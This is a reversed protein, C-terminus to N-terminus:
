EPQMYIPNTVALLGDEADRIEVVGWHKGSFTWAKTSSADAAFADHLDGDVILRVQDTNGCQSWEATLTVSDGSLTDGMMVSQGGRNHGSFALQPGSSLYLHGQRVAALIASESLSDAYVVDFLYVRAPPPEGHIDTGSTAVLRHGQNLWQYWLQLAAENNSFSDWHENCIEVVQASGPMLDPYDWHCGTCAPDGPCEPHAIVFLGGAAEIEQQITTMSREDPHVRWEILERVGLALAHGYFTTLEFGGMVLLDDSALSHMHDLGSVTNHDTLTIFDLQQSLAYQALGDVDWSGDSHLTHAHLDGRYWGPGRPATTGPTWVRPMDAVDADFGFAIRIEYSVTADPLILNTNIMLNWEGPQLLGAHYGPIAETRSITVQQTPQGRHGTGRERQPDFLSLTLLNGYRGIRKPAYEFDIHLRTAGEPVSFFHDIHQHNHQETLAGDFQIHM